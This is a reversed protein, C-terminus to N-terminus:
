SKMGYWFDVGIVEDDKGIEPYAPNAEPGQYEYYFCGLLLWANEGNIMGTTGNPNTESIEGNAAFDIDISIMYKEIIQALEETVAVYGDKNCKNLYGRMIETYDTPDTEYVATYNRTLDSASYGEDEINTNDFVYYYKGQYEYVQNLNPDYYLPCAVQKNDITVTVTAGETVINGNADRKPTRLSAFVGNEVMSQVSPNAAASTAMYWSHTLNMYIPSGLTGDKNVVYYYGDDGVKVSQTLLVMRGFQEDGTVPDIGVIEMTYYWGDEDGAAPKWTYGSEAYKEVAVYFNGLDGRMSFDASFYYTHGAELYYRLAYHGNSIGGEDNTAISNSTMYGEISDYLWVCTDVLGGEVGYLEGDFSYFQYVGDTEPTFAHVFGRTSLVRNIDVFSPKAEEMVIPSYPSVGRVPDTIVGEDIGYHDYYVCLELWEKAHGPRQESSAITSTAKRLLNSLQENVPVYGYVSSGTSISVYLGLEESIGTLQGSTLYQYLSYNSWHSGALLNALLLPGNASGVHYYGDAENFVPNIYKEYVQAGTANKIIDGTAAYRLVNVYDGKEAIEDTAGIRLNSIYVTDEQDKGVFSDDDDKIYSFALEYTGDEDAVFAYHTGTANGYIQATAAGNIFVHLIDIGGSADFETSAKYDFLLVEDKRLPVDVYLISWSNHLERGGNGPVISKGDKGLVFPWTYEAGDESASVARYIFNYNPSIAANMQASTPMEVDPRTLEIEQGPTNPKNPNIDQAYDDSTYKAFLENWRNASTISGLHTEAVVGYRDVIVTLPISSTDFGLSVVGGDAVMPFTYENQTRYSSVTSEDDARGQFFVNAALVEAKDSYQDYATQLSPLESVCPGCRTSWFNLLVMRKEKLLESLTYTITKGDDSFYPATVTFDYMVDGVAYVKDTPATEQIVSSSCIITSVTEGTLDTTLNTTTVTYGLPVDTATLTYNAPDLTFTVNGSENTVATAAPNGSADTATVTVNKLPMGGQSTVRVTYNVKNPDVPNDPKCAALPIALALASVMGLAAVTGLIKKM